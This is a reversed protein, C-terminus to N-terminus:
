LQVFLMINSLSIFCLKQDMRGGTSNISKHKRWIPDKVLEVAEVPNPTLLGRYHIWGAEVGAKKQVNPINFM